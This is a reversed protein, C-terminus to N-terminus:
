IEYHRNRLYIAAAIFGSALILGALLSPRTIFEALNLSPQATTPINGFFDGINFGHAYAKIMEAIRSRDFILKEMFALVIWPLLAYAIPMKKAAASSLMLWAILPLSWLGAMLGAIVSQLYTMLPNVQQWAHTWSFDTYVANYISAAIFHLLTGVFACLSALLPMILVAVALRTLVVRTESVPLSKFFLISRDRRDNYLSGTAYILSLLIMISACATYVTNQVGALIKQQTYIASPAFSKKNEGSEWEIQFTKDTSPKSNNAGPAQPAEPAGSHMVQEYARVSEQQLTIYSGAVFLAIFLVLVWPIIVLIGRNEWVERHFQAQFKNM